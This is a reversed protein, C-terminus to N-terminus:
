RNLAKYMAMKKMILVKQNIEFLCISKKVHFVVKASGTTEMDKNNKIM